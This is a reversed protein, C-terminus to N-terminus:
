PLRLDARVQATLHAISHLKSWQRNDLSHEIKGTKNGVYTRKYYALAGSALFEEAKAVKERPCCKAMWWATSLTYGVAHYGGKVASWALSFPTGIFVKAPMAACRGISGAIGGLKSATWSFASLGIAVVAYVVAGGGVMAPAAAHLGQLKQMGKGVLSGATTAASVIKPTLKLADSVDKIAKASDKIMGVGDKAAAVVAAGAAQVEQSSYVGYAWKGFDFLQQPVEPNYAVTAGVLREAWTMNLIGRLPAGALALARWPGVFGALYGLGLTTAWAAKAIKAPNKAEIISRLAVDKAFDIAREMKTMNAPAVAPAAAPAAAAPAAAPAAGPAAVHAAREKQSTVQFERIKDDGDKPDVVGYVLHGIVSYACEKGDQKINFRSGELDARQFGTAASMGTVIVTAALYYVAKVVDLLGQGVHVTRDKVAAVIDVGESRSAFKPIGNIGNLM